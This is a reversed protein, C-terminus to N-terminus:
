PLCTRLVTRLVARKSAITAGMPEAWGFGVRGETVAVSPPDKVASTGDTISLGKGMPAGDVGVHAAVLQDDARGDHAVWTVIAGDGTGVATAWKGRAVLHPPGSPRASKDLPRAVIDSNEMWLALAGS